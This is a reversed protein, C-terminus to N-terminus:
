VTPPESTTTSILLADAKNLASEKTGMLSLDDRSGYIRQTEEMAEPDYAQVRAGAEWLQEMLIRSPAERM